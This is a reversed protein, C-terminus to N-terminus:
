GVVLPESSDQDPRDTQNDEVNTEEVKPTLEEIRQAMANVLMRAQNRERIAFEMLKNALKLDIKLRRIKRDKQSAQAM